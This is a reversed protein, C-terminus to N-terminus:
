AHNRALDLRRLAVDLVFLVMAIRLLWPWLPVARDVPPLEHALLQDPTPDFLGGTSGALERLLDEGAPRLRLEEPCGVVLGRSRRSHTTGDIEQRVEFHWAGSHDTLIETRYRGPAIPEMTVERRQMSPDVVLLSTPLGSQFRGTADVCDLTVTTRAGERAVDVVVGRADEDRMVERAIQAWFSSFGSWSLWDAAWRSKADSTWTAVRGLGYRWWSLLPDGTETGLVVESTPKPRTVVYGMLFPVSQFDIGALAPTPRLLQPLFPDEDLGSKSATVTEKAFIQPVQRPDDSFYYRGRGIEALEELLREHAGQGLAVTSLTIRAAAMRRALEHFEGPASQGDTLVIVHKLKAVTRELAELAEQMAPAMATGGGSEITSIRELIEARDACPRVDVVWYSAGDYCLVGIRDRPGLLEVAAKAADKALEIKVGGMSGSKDLVLVMALSPKEKEQEFDSRVPLAEELASRDYGGLGFSQDGGLMLLGGGLEEVWTKLLEMQEIRLATAPVNSLIALEFNQLDALSDPAGLPPRIEVRLGERELARALHRAEKTDSDVLLVRPEGEAYVLTSETNNRLVTDQFGHIRVRFEAMRDREIQQRFRLRNEGPDLTVEQEVVRFPGRYVEVTGTDAHNSDLVVDVFFPQGQRVQAPALVQSVQVEPDDPVPLPVTSVPVGEARLAAARVDGETENGDTILVVHPAHFPPVASVASEFAAALNTAADFADDTRDAGRAEDTGGLTEAESEAPSREGEPGSSADSATGTHDPRGREWEGPDPDLWLERPTREFELTAVRVGERTELTERVFEQARAFAEEGISASRDVALVVFRQESPRHITLGALALVLLLLVLVRVVFSAVRQTPHLDILSRRFGWYVIPLAVLATLWRPDTLEWDAVSM